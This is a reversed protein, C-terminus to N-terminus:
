HFLYNYLGDINYFKSSPVRCRLANCHWLSVSLSFYEWFRLFQLAAVLNPEWNTVLEKNETFKKFPRVKIWEKYTYHLKYTHAFLWFCKVSKKLRLCLKVYKKFKFCTKRLKIYFSNRLCFNIYLKWNIQVLTIALYM